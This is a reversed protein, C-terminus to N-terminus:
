AKSRDEEEGSIDEAGGVVAEGEFGGIVAAEWDGEESEAASGSGEIRKEPRKDEGRSRRESIM